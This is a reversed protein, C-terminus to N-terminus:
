VGILWVLDVVVEIYGNCILVGNEKVIFLFLYGLCYFDEFNINEDIFVRVM